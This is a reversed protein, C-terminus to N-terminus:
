PKVAIYLFCRDKGDTTYAGPVTSEFDETFARCLVGSQQDAWVLAWANRACASLDEGEAEYKRYTGQAAKEELAAFFGSSAALITLDYDGREDGAYNHYLSVPSVGPQFQGESDFLLPLKGSTVDGWLAGVAALGEASNNARLTVSSLSYSM